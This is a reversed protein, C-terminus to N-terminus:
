QMWATREYIKNLDHLRRSIHSTCAFIKIGLDQQVLAHVVNARTDRVFKRPLM